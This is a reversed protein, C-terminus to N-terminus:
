AELISVSTALTDYNPLNKVDKHDLNCERIDANKVPLHHYLWQLEMQDRDTWRLPWAAKLALNKLELDVLKLGM